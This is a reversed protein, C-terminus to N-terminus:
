IVRVNKFIRFHTPTPYNVADKIWLTIRSFLRIKWTDKRMVSFAARLKPHSLKLDRICGHAKGRASVVGTVRYCPARLSWLRWESRDICVLTSYISKVLFHSFLLSLYVEPIHLNEGSLLISFIYYYHKRLKYNKFSLVRLLM